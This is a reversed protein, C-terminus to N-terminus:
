GPRPPGPPGPRKEFHSKEIHKIDSSQCHPCVLQSGSGLGILLMVFGIGAVIGGLVWNRLAVGLGLGAILLLGGIGREAKGSNVEGQWGCNLCHIWAM